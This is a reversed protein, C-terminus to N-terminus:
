KFYLMIKRVIKSILNNDVDLRDVSDRLLSFGDGKKMLEKVPIKNADLHQKTAYPPRVSYDYINDYLRSFILANNYNSIFWLDDFAYEREKLRQPAYFFSPDLNKFIIPKTFLLDFRLFVVWDYKIGTMESYEKMLEVSKKSSYWRSKTRAALIKLYEYPKEQTDLIPKYSDIHKLNYNELGGESFDIQPEFIKVKPAYLKTLLEEFDTSWSHMFVDVDNGKFIYDFYNNRSIEPDNWGGLGDRGSKGGVHGFFCVAIKTASM